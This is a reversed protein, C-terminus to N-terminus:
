YFSSIFNNSYEELLDHYIFEAKLYDKEEEYISALELNLDKNLKDIALGEIILTKAKDLYWKAKNLKVRKLIESIKKTEKPNLKKAKKIEKKEQKKENKEIEKLKEIKEVIHSKDPAIINKLNQITILIKDYLYYIIYFFSLFFVIIETRILFLNEM